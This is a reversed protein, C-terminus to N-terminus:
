RLGCSPLYRIPSRLRSFSGLTSIFHPDIVSVSFGQGAKYIRSSDVIKEHGAYSVAQQANSYRGHQENLGSAVVGISM